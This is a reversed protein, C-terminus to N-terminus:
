PVCNNMEEIPCEIHVTDQIADHCARSASSAKSCKLGAM